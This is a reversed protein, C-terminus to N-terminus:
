QQARDGAASRHVPALGPRRPLRLVRRLVLQREGWRGEAVAFTVGAVIFTAWLVLVVVLWGRLQPREARRRRDIEMLQQAWEVTVTRLRPEQLERGWTVASEVQATEAPQLGHRQAMTRGLAEAEPAGSTRSWFRRGGLWWAALPLAVLFLLVATWAM